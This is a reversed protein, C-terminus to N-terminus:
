ARLRGNNAEKKFPPEAGLGGGSRRAFGAQAEESARRAKSRDCDRKASLQKAGKSARRAESRTHKAKRKAEKSARQAESRNAKRKQV